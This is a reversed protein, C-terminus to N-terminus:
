HINTFKLAGEILQAVAVLFGRFVVLSELEFITAITAVAHETIGALVTITARVAFVARVTGVARMAAVAHIAM